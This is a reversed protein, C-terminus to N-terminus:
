KAEKTSVAGSVMISQEITEAAKVKTLPWIPKDNGRLRDTNCINDKDNRDGAKCKQQGDAILWDFQMATEADNVVSLAVETTKKLILVDAYRDGNFDGVFLNRPNANDLNLYHRQGYTQNSRSLYSVRWEWMGDTNQNRATLVDTLGDGNFDGLQITTALAGKIEEKATSPTLSNFYRAIPSIALNDSFSGFVLDEAGQANALRYTPQLQNNFSITHWQEKRGHIASFDYSVFFLGMNNPNNADFYGAQIGYVNDLSISNRNGQSIEIYDDKGFCTDNAAMDVLSVPCIKIKLNEDDSLFLMDSKGDGNFDGLVLGGIERLLGSGLRRGTQSGNPAVYYSTKIALPESEVYNVQWLIDTQGNGDFDGFYVSDHTLADDALLNEIEVSDAVADLNNSSLLNEQYRPHDLVSHKTHNGNFFSFIGNVPLQGSFILLEPDVQISVVDSAGNGDFDISHSQQAIRNNVFPYSASVRDLPIPGAYDPVIGTNSNKNSNNPKIGVNPLHLNFTRSNNDITISDKLYICDNTFCADGEVSLEIQSANAIAAVETKLTVGESSSLIEDCERHADRWGARCSKSTDNCALEDIFQVCQYGSWADQYNLTDLTLPNPCAARGIYTGVVDCHANKSHMGFFQAVCNKSANIEEAGCASAKAVDGTLTFETELDFSLGSQNLDLNIHGYFLSDDENSLCDNTNRDKNLCATGNFHIQHADLKLNAEAELIPNQAQALKLDLEVNEIDIKPFRNIAADVVLRMRGDKDSQAPKVELTPLHDLSGEFRRLGAREAMAKAINVFAHTTLSADTELDIGFETPVGTEVNFGLNFNVLDVNRWVVQENENVDKIFTDAGLYVSVATANLDLAMHAEDFSLWSLGFLPIASSADGNSRQTNGNRISQCLSTNATWNQINAVNALLEACLELQPNAGFKVDGSAVIELPNEVDGHLLVDLRSQIGLRVESDTIDLFVDGLFAGFWQAKPKFPTLSSLTSAEYAENRLGLEANLSFTEADIEGILLLNVIPSAGDAAAIFHDLHQQSEGLQGVEMQAMFSVGRTIPQQGFHKSFFEQAASPLDSISDLQSSAFVLASSEFQVTNLPFGASPLVQHPLYRSLGVATGENEIDASLGVILLNGLQDDHHLSLMAGIETRKQPSIIQLNGVSDIEWNAGVKSLDLTLSEFRYQTEGHANTFDALQSNDGTLHYHLDSISIDNFSLQISESSNAGGGAYNLDLQASTADNGDVYNLKADIGIATGHHAQNADGWGYQLYFDISDVSWAQALFDTPVNHADHDLRAELRLYPDSGDLVFNLVASGRSVVESADCGTSAGGANTAVGNSDMCIGINAVGTFETTVTAPSTSSDRLVSVNFNLNEYRVQPHNFVQWVDNNNSPNSDNDGNLDQGTFYEYLAEVNDANVESLGGALTMAIQKNTKTIELDASITACTDGQGEALCDAYQGSSDFGPVNITADIQASYSAPTNGEKERRLAMSAQSLILNGKNSEDNSVELLATYNDQGLQTDLLSELANATGSNSADTSVPQSFGLELEELSGGPLVEIRLMGSYSTGAGPSLTSQSDNCSPYHSLTTRVKGLVQSPAVSQGLTFRTGLALSAYDLNFCSFGFPHQWNFVDSKFFVQTDGSQVFDMTGLVKLTSCNNRSAQCNEGIELDTSLQLFLENTGADDYLGLGLQVAKVSVANSQSSNSAQTINEIPIATSVGSGDGQYLTARLFTQNAEVVSFDLLPSIGESFNAELLVQNLNGLGTHVMNIHERLSTLDARAAFNIGYNVKPHSGPTGTSCAGYAKGSGCYLSKVTNPLSTLDLHLAPAILVPDVNDAHDQDDEDVEIASSDGIVVSLLAGSFTFNVDASDAFNGFLDSLENFSNAINAQTLDVTLLVEHSVFGDSGSPLTKVINLHGTILQNFLRFKFEIGQALGAQNTYKVQSVSLGTLPAIAPSYELASLDQLTEGNKKLLNSLLNLFHCNVGSSTCYSVIDDISNPNQDQSDPIGDGDDDLDANNGYGDGDSDLTESPDFPLMDANDGVGDKDSNKQEKDDFPLEDILDSVGDNDDDHDCANGHADSDNNAQNNNPTSPCNDISNVRGDRDLDRNSVCLWKNAYQGWLNTRTFTKLQICQDRNVSASDNQYSLQLNLANDYCFYHNKYTRNIYDARELMCSAENQLTAKVNYYRKNDRFYWTRNSKYCQGIDYDNFAKQQCRYGDLDNKSYTIYSKAPALHSEHEFATGYAVGLGQGAYNVLLQSEGTNPDITYIRTGAVYYLNDGNSSLGFVLGSSMLLSDLTQGNDPNLTVLTNKPATHTSSLYLKGQHFALDGSSNPGNMAGVLTAAGNNPNLRYLSSNAAFLQGQNDFTLSNTASINNHSGVLTLAGTQRNIKYLNKGAIGFLDGSPSFAIDTLVKNVKTVKNVEGTRLDVYGINGSGDSLWIQHYSANAINRPGEKVPKSLISSSTLLSFDNQNWTSKSGNAYFLEVEAGGGNEFYELQFVHEGKPLYISGLVDIPATIQQYEFVLNGNIYLRAGDDTRVGFTYNDADAVQITGKVSVAFTDGDVPQGPFPRDGDYHGTSPYTPFYKWREFYLDDLLSDKRGALPKSSSLLSGLERDRADSSLERFVIPRNPRDPLYPIDLDDEDIFIPFGPEIPYEIPYDIIPYNPYDIVSHNPNEYFNVNNTLTQFGAIRSLVSNQVYKIERNDDATRIVWQNDIKAIRRCKLGIRKIYVVGKEEVVNVQAGTAVYGAECTSSFAGGGNGGVTEPTSYEWDRQLAWSTKACRLGVQDIVNGSRGRIGSVMEDTGCDLIQSSTAGNTSGYQLPYDYGTGFYGQANGLGLTGDVELELCFFRIARIVPSGNSYNGQWAQAQSVVMGVPCEFHNTTGGSQGHVTANYKDDVALTYASALIDTSMLVTCVLIFLSRITM